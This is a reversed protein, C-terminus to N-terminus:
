TAVLHSEPSRFDPVAPRREADQEVLEALETALGVVADGNNLRPYFHKTSGLIVGAIPGGSAPVTGFSGLPHLPEVYPARFVPAAQIDDDSLDPFMRRLAGLFTARISEDSEDFLESDPNAYRPLYVLHRDGVLAPDIINTTEIVATFPLSTDGLYLAYNSSLPRRLMLLLCVVGLYGQMNVIKDVYQDIAQQLAASETGTATRSRLLKGAVPLPVTLVVAECDIHRGDSRLGTIRGDHTHLEDVPSNTLVTGGMDAICDALRQALTQYGGVLHGALEKRGDSSRTSTMRVTRSWIYTAPIKSFDGDFKSSLLPRWVHEFAQNGSNRRLWSEVDVDELAKWDRVRRCALLSRVLRLRDVFKLPPFKLLDLPSSISHYEGNVFFSSRVPTMRLMDRLGVEDILDLLNNDANLICHYFRDVRIGDVEVDTALGGLQDGAELVTVRHGARAMFYATSLGLLGGGVVVTNM